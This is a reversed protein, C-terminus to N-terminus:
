SVEEIAGNVGYGANNVLVDVRGFRALAAAVAADVQAQDTVDLRLAQASAPYKAELDQVQEPKRATAVVKAGAALLYEALLRGFGTSAGTIFWVKDQQPTANSNSM